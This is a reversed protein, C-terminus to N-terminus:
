DAIIEEIEKLSKNHREMLEQYSLKELEQRVNLRIHATKPTPFAGHLKFALEAARLVNDGTVKTEVGRQLISGVSESVQELNLGKRDLVKNVEEIVQPKRLNESAINAAVSPKATNYTELAAQTGNGTEIYKKVFQKQKLTTM